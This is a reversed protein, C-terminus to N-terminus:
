GIRSLVTRPAIGRQSAGPSKGTIVERHLKLLRQNKPVRMAATPADTVDKTAVPLGGVM